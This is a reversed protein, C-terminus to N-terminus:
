QPVWQGASNQVFGYGGAQVTAGGRGTSVANNGAATGLASISKTANSDLDGIVQEISQGSALGNIINHTTTSVDTPTGGSANLINSYKSAIEGILNYANQYRPDGSQNKVWQNIGNLAATTLGGSLSNFGSNTIATTLQQTLARAQAQNGTQTQIIGGQGVQEQTAGAGAPGAAGSPLTGFTNSGPNYPTSTIGYPQPATLGAVDEAGGTEVQAANIINAQEAANGAIAGSLYPGESAKEAAIIEPSANPNFQGTYNPGLIGAQEPTLTNGFGGTGGARASETAGTNLINNQEELAQYTPNDQVDSATQVNSLNKQFDTGNNAITGPATTNQPASPTYTQGPNAKEWAVQEPPKGAQETEATQVAAKETPNLSALLGATTGTDSSGGATNTTITGDPAITHSIGSTKGAALPGVAGTGNESTPAVPASQKPSLGTAGNIKGIIGQQPNGFPNAALKPGGSLGSQPNTVNSGGTNLSIGTAM